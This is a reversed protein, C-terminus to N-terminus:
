DASRFTQSIFSSAKQMGEAPFITGVTNALPSYMRHLLANEGSHKGLLFALGAIVVLCTMIVQQFIKREVQWAELVQGLATHFQGISITRNNDFNQLTTNHAYLAIDMNRTRNKDFERLTTNYSTIANDMNRTRNNDFNRFTTNYSDRSQGYTIGADNMGRRYTEFETTFVADRLGTSPNVAFQATERRRVAM